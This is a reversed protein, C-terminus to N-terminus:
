QIRKGQTKIFTNFDEPLVFIQDSYREVKFVYKYELVPGNNSKARCIHTARGQFYSDDYSNFVTDIKTSIPAYDKVEGVILLNRISDIVAKNFEPGVINPKKGSCDFLFLMMIGMLVLLLKKM